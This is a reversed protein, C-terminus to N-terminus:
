RPKVLAVKTIDYRGPAPTASGRKSDTIGGPKDTKSPSSDGEVEGKERSDKDFIYGKSGHDLEEVARNKPWPAHRLDRIRTKTNNIRM